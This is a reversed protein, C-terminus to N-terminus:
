LSVQRPVERQHELSIIEIIRTIAEELQGEANIVVYDYEDIRALEERATQLRKELDEASDTGRSRLREILEEESATNLFILIAESAVERITAAGQVDLRMLVDKGSAMASRVQERPVGKYDNYVHANELLEGNALMRQFEEESIFLYDVGEEEDPRPERTNVTVVFHLNDMREKLGRLVSDKGVGSPGSIVILLPHQKQTPKPDTM